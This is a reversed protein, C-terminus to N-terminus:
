TSTKMPYILAQATHGTDTSKRRSSDVPDFQRDIASSAGIAPVAYTQVKRRYRSDGSMLQAYATATMIPSRDLQNAVFHSAVGAMLLIKAPLASMPMDQFSRYRRAPCTAM